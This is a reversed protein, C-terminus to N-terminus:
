EKCLWDLGLDYMTAELPRGQEDWGMM